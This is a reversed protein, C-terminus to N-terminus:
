FHRLFDDLTEGYETLGLKERMRQKKRSISARSICYIDSMDKISVNIKVLCCFYIDKKVLGPFAKKLRVSFKEYSGDVTKRIDEWEDDTLAIRRNQGEGAEEESEDEKELSPIKHFAKMRRFLSERLANEKERLVSLEESQKLLQEAQALRLSQEQLLQRYMQRKRRQWIIYGAAFTVVFCLGLTLLGIERKQKEIKLRNLENELRTNEYLQRNEIDTSQNLEKMLHRDADLSAYFACSDRGLSHYALKLRRSAEAAVWINLATAAIRYSAVASDYEGIGAWLNGRSLHYYPVAKRNDINKRIMELAEFGERYRGAASYLAAVERCLAGYQWDDALLSAKRYYEMAKDVEGRDAYVFALYCCVRAKHGDLRFFREALQMYFSVSDIGSGNKYSAKGKNFLHLAIAFSDPKIRNREDDATKKRGGCAFLICPLLLLFLLKKM